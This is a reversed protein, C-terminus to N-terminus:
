VNNNNFINNELNASNSIKGFWVALIKIDVFFDCSSVETLYLFKKIKIEKIKNKTLNNNFQSFCVCLLAM